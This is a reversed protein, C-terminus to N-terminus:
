RRDRGGALLRDRGVSRVRRRHVREEHRLRPHRAGLADYVEAVPDLLPVVRPPRVPAPHEVVADSIHVVPLATATDRGRPDLLRTRFVARIDLDVVEVQERLQPLRALLDGNDDVVFSTGDFILEDQGGVMNVYVIHCHADEARTAVMREREAQRGQFYPSGNPLVLLEAGGASQDAIAGEPSWVDECIAMGVKVGAVEFLTLPDTGPAFYRQEDFVAYNPLLRKRYTGVM